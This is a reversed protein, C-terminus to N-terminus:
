QKRGGIFYLEEGRFMRQAEETSYVRFGFGRSRLGRFEKRSRLQEFIQTQIDDIGQIRNGWQNLSRLKDSVIFADVDFNGLDIPQGFTPKSRNGVTGRALSGRFGILADEGAIERIQGLFPQIEEGLAQIVQERSFSRGAECAAGPVGVMGIPNAMGLLASNLAEEPSPGTVQNAQRDVHCGAFFCGVTAAIDIATDALGQAKSYDLLPEDCLPCPIDIV